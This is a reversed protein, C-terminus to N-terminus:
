GRALLYTMLPDPAFTNSVYLGGDTGEELRNDEDQSIFVNSLPPPTGVFGGTFSTESVGGNVVTVCSLGGHIFRTEVKM